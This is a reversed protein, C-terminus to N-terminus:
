YPLHAFEESNDIDILQGKLGIYQEVEEGAILKEIKDFVAPGFYPSSFVTAGMDGSLVAKYADQEGDIGIIIVDEGPTIGAAKLAQAAGLAMEDNHAYVVDFDGARAQIINEMVEQAASRSFDATQSVVIEMEPHDAIGERFGQARDIVASAGVTGTLEVITAKGNTKKAAWEGAERGEWVCDAALLAVYDVGPEGAVARDILIVPIGAQKAADIAPTLGEFERPSMVIYDVGQAVLDEVDSVQKATVEQADTFFIEFGRKEAEEVLSNTEAVRYAVTTGVQSFGVKIKEDKNADQELDQEQDDSTEVDQSQSTDPSDAGVDNKSCGVLGVISSIMTMIMIVKFLKKM